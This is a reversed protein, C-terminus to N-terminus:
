IRREEGGAGKQPLSGGHRGGWLGVGGEGVGEEGGGALEAEGDGRVLEGGGEGVEVEEEGVIGAGAEGGDGVGGLHGDLM